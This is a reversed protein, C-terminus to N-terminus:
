KVVVLKKTAQYHGSTLLYFYVGAPIKSDHWEVQHYGPQQLGMNFTKVLQGAVNYIKLSVPGSAPLQYSIVTHQSFPNPINQGLQLKNDAMQCNPKGAVGAATNYKITLCSSTGNYSAGTVYLNGSGDIACDSPSDNSDAPSNYRCTWLTDGNANYKITLYDFNAGNYSHYPVYLNGSDDAVCDNAYDLWYVPGYSSTWLTDGATNYKIINLFAYSTDVISSATVYLNGSGDVACSHVSGSGEYRKTWITDGTVANYKIALCSGSSTGAVYLNGFGDVDCSNNFGNASFRRTWITDGTATNYKITLYDPSSFGTVYLNGSDDVACSYAIDSGNAYVTGKYRRSWITDGTTTNYKITLYDEDQTENYYYGTVYLYGSNDVACDKAGDDDDASGIYSRVWITDGTVANYKIILFDSNSGNSSSGAVYLNGAADVACSTAAAGSFAPGNYTRVWVTYPAQAYLIGPLLLVSVSLVVWFLTNRM